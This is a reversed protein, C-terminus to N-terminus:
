SMITPEIKATVQKRLPSENTAFGTGSLVNEWNGM